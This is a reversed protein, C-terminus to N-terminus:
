VKFGFYELIYKGIGSDLPKNKDILFNIKSTEIVKATHLDINEIQDELKDLFNDIEDESDSTYFKIIVKTLIKNNEM